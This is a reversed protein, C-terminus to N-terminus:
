RNREDGEDQAGRIAGTLVYRELARQVHERVDGRVSVPPEVEFLLELRLSDAPNALHRAVPVPPGSYRLPLPVDAGSGGVGEHVIEADDSLARPVVEAEVLGEVDRHVRASLDRGKHVVERDLAPSLPPGGPRAFTM